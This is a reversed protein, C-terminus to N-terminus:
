DGGAHGRGPEAGVDPAFLLTLVAVHDHAWGLVADPRQRWMYETTLRTGRNLVRAVGVTLRSQVLAYPAIPRLDWALEQSATPWWGWAAPQYTVRLQNRYRLWAETPTMRWELRNRDNLHWDGVAGQVNPEAELRLMQNFLGTPAQEAYASAQLGLLLWPTVQWLPGVRLSSVGLGGYRYAFRSSSVARLARPSLPSAREVPVRVELVNWSEADARAPLAPLLVGALALPLLWRIATRREM